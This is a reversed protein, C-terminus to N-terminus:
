NEEIEQDPVSTDATSETPEINEDVIEEQFDDVEDSGDDFPPQYVIYVEQVGEELTTVGVISGEVADDATADVLKGDAILYYTVAGELYYLSMEEAPDDLAKVDVGMFDIVDKDTKYTYWTILESDASVVLGLADPPAVFPETGTTADDTPAPAETTNPSVNKNDSGGQEGCAALLSVCLMVAMLISLIRINKM